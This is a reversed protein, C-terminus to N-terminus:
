CLVQMYEKSIVSGPLIVHGVHVTAGWFDGCLDITLTM